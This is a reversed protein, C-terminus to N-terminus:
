RIQIHATPEDLIKYLGYPAAILILFIGPMGISENLHFASIFWACAAFWVLLLVVYLTIAKNDM